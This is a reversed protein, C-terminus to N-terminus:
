SLSRVAPLVLGNMRQDKISFFFLCSPSMANYSCIFLIDLTMAVQLGQTNPLLNCLCLRSQKLRKRKSDLRHLLDWHEPLGPQFSELERNCSQRPHRHPWKCKKMSFYSGRLSPLYSGLQWQLKPHCLLGQLDPMETWSIPHRYTSVQKIMM